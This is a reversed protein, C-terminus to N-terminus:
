RFLNAAPVRSEHGDRDVDDYRTRHNLRPAPRSSRDLGRHILVIDETFKLWGRQMQSYDRFDWHPKMIGSASHRNLGQLVHVIEHALVHGLLARAFGPPAADQVRDYFLVIRTRDFPLAYALAGPHQNAPTERSVSVVIGNGETYDRKNCRWSLRIGAQKMIQTAVARGANIMAGDNDPNLCVTVVREPIQGGYSTSAGMAAALMATWGIWRGIRM